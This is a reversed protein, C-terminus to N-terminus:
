AGVGMGAACGTSFAIQLNYGGTYADVDIIEGAFHLCRRLKSEMTKPNIESVSVGGRTVVAEEIPAKGTIGVRFAKLAGTIGTRAARTVESAKTQGDAQARELVFPILRGPLLGRLANALTQAGREALGRTLRASLREPTLGPKLDIVVDQGPQWSASASLVLPGSLGSHTFLLEGVDGGASVNRLTLGALAPCCPDPSLLPVLSAEPPVITHGAQRALGYGSGDSGTLPYSMGGAALVVAGEPLRTVNAKVLAVGLREACRWLADAVDHASGSQPFVRGGRETVLAVGLGEFFRMTERPPFAAICSHLFRANRPVNELFAAEDCNNTLNCRGKGTLRLKKGAFGNKDLLTVRFGREAAKVSAM